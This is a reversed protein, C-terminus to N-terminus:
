NETLTNNIALLDFFIGKYMKDMLFLPHTVRYRNIELKVLPSKRIIKFDLNDDFNSVNISLSDLDKTKQEFEPENQILQYEFFGKKPKSLIDKIMGFIVGIYEHVTAKCYQKLLEKLHTNYKLNDNLFNFLFLSKITQCIFERQKNFNLLDATSFHGSFFLVPLRYGDPYYTNIHDSCLKQSKTFQSNLLLIIRFIRYEIQKNSLSNEKSSSNELGIQILKLYSIPFGLNLDTYNIGYINSIKKKIGESLKRNEESFIHDLTIQDKDLLTKCLFASGAEILLNSSIGEILSEISDNEEPFLYDFEILVSIGPLM